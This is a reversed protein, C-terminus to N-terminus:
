DRIGPHGAESRKTTVTPCCRTPWFPDTIPLAGSSRNILRVWFVMRYFFLLFEGLFELWFMPWPLRDEIDEVMKEGPCVIDVSEVLPLLLRYGSLVKIGEASAKTALSGSTRFPKASPILTM